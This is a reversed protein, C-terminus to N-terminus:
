LLVYVPEFTTIAYTTSGFLSCDVIDIDYSLGTDYDSIEVGSGWRSYFTGNTSTYGDLTFTGQPAAMSSGFTFFDNCCTLTIYTSVGDQSFTIKGGHVVNLNDITKMKSVQKQNNSEITVVDENITM